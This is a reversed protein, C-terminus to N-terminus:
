PIESTSKFSANQLRNLDTPNSYAENSVSINNLGSQQIGRNYNTLQMGTASTAKVRAKNEHLDNRTMNVSRTYQAGLIETGNANM